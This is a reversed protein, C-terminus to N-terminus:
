SQNTVSCVPLDPTDQIEPQGDLTFKVEVSRKSNGESDIDVQPTMTEINMKKGSPVAFLKALDAEELVIVYKHKM